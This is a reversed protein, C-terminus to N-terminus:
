RGVLEWNTTSKNIFNEKNYPRETDDYKIEIGVKEMNTESKNIFDDENDIHRYIDDFDINVGSSKWDIGVLPTNEKSYQQKLKNLKVQFKLLKELDGFEPHFGGAFLEDIDQGKKGVFSGVAGTAAVEKLISNNINKISDDIFSM